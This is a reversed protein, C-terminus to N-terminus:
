KQPPGCLKMTLPLGTWIGILASVYVALLAWGWCSFWAGFYAPTFYGTFKGANVATMLLSMITGVIFALVATSVMTFPVTQPKLGFKSAVLDGLKNIPIFLVILTSIPFAIAFGKLFIPWNLTHMAVIPLVICLAINIIASIYINLTLNFKNLIKNLKEIRREIWM